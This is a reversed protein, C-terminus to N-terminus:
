ILAEGDGEEGEGEDGDEAAEGTEFDITKGAELISLLKLAEPIQAAEVDTIKEVGFHANIERVLVGRAKREAKDEIGLFAGFREMLTEVTPAKKGAPKTAPKTAAAAGKGAAVRTAEKEIMADAASAGKGAAPKAGKLAATLEKMAATNVALAEELSM